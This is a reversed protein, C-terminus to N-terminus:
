NPRRRRFQDTWRDLTPEYVTVVVTLQVDELDIAVVHIPTTDITGNYIRKLGGSPEASVEVVDGEELIARVEAESVVLSSM